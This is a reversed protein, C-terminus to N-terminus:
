AMFGLDASAFRNLNPFVTNLDSSSAGLWKGLTAAYQDVATSPIFRGDILDDASGLRLDPMQGYITGGRVAGGMVMQHSGWAHDTGDGNSTLTRGFDSHTFTTVSQGMGLENLAGDFAKLSASLDALLNAHQALHADHTDFGGMGIFFIQRSPAGLQTRSQMLRTVALLQKGLQSAPFVTNLPAAGTLAGGVRAALEDSERAVAGLYAAFPHNGNVASQRIAALTAARQSSSAAAEYRVPGSAAMSYATTLAGTQFLNTGSISVNMALGDASSDMMLDSLRGAWGGRSPESDPQGLMWQTQQDNHSLLNRPLNHGAAYDAKTTPALLTGTNALFALRGAAFMDRLGPVSPHLGYDGGSLPSIPLLSANSLALNRRGAAYTAYGAADRPVLLNLSDNGGLLFVCVLARYDGPAANASSLGLGRLSGLLSYTGATAFAAQAACRLFRRRSFDPKNM